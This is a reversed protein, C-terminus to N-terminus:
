SDAAGENRTPPPPAAPTGDQAPEAADSGASPFYRAHPNYNGGRQLRLKLDDAEGVERMDAYPDEEEMKHLNMDRHCGAKDLYGNGRIYCIVNQGQFTREARGGNCRPCVLVAKLEKKTPEMKHDTEYITEFLEDQTLESGKVKEAADKCDLCVYNYSPM